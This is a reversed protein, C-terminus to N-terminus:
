SAGQQSPNPTAIAIQGKDPCSSSANLANVYICCFLPSIFEYATNLNLLM